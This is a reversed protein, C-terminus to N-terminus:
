LKFTRVWKDIGNAIAIGRMGAVNRSYKGVAGCEWILTNTRISRLFGLGRVDVYSAKTALGDDKYAEAIMSCLDVLHLANKKKPIIGFGKNPATSMDHHIEMGLRFNSANVSKLTGVWNPDHAKRGMAGARELTVSHGLATLRGHVTEAVKINCDHELIKSVPDVAGPDFTKNPRIGHGPAILIKAM